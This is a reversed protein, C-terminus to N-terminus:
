LGTPFPPKCLSYENKKFFTTNRARTGEGSRKAPRFALGSPAKRTQAKAARAKRTSNGTLNLFHRVRGNRRYAARSSVRHDPRRMFLIREDNEVVLPAISGVTGGGWAPPNQDGVVVALDVLRRNEREGVDDDLLAPQFEQVGVRSLFGFRQQARVAVDRHEQEVHHHLALIGPQRQDAPNAAFEAAAVQADDQAGPLRAVRGLQLDDAFVVDVVVLRLGFQRQRAEDRREGRRNAGVALDAGDGLAPVAQLQDDVRRGVQKRPAAQRQEALAHQCLDEGQDAALRGAKEGDLALKAALRFAVHPDRM